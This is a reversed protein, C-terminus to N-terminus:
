HGSRGKADGPLPAEALSQQGKGPVHVPPNKASFVPLQTKVNHEVQNTIVRLRFAHQVQSVSWSTGLLREQQCARILLLDALVMMGLSREIRREETSGQPEGLGLDM